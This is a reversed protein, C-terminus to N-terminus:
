ANVGGGVGISVVMKFASPDFGKVLRDVLSGARFLVKVENACGQVGEGRSFTFLVVAEDSVVFIAELLHCILNFIAKPGSKVVMLMGPLTVAVTRLVGPSVARVSREAVLAALWAVIPGLTLVLLETWGVTALLGVMADVGAGVYGDNECQLIRIVGM